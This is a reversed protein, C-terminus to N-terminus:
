KSPDVVAVIHSTIARSAELAHTAKALNSASTVIDAEVARAVETSLHTSLDAHASLASDVANMTGGTQTRALGVQKTASELEPLLSQLGALDNAELASAVRDFLPLVDVGASATLSAGTISSGVIADDSIPLDRVSSDGTYTGTASFPASTSVSGALIYEGDVTQTNAAAIATAFLTRVQAGLQARDAAGYSANAGQLALVRMSSLADGIGGLAHDTLALRERGVELAAVSGGALTQKMSARQSAAWAEPDDSPKTVRLGSSAEAAFKAVRSQNAADAAKAVDIMRNGTIRM